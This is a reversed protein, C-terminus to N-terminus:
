VFVFGELDKVVLTGDIRKMMRSVWLVTFYVAALLLFNYMEIFTSNTKHLGATELRHVALKGRTSYSKSNFFPLM